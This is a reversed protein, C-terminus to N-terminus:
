GAHIEYRSGLVCSALRVQHDLQFGMNSLVRELAITFATNNPSIQLFLNMTFELVRVDVALSPMKPACGFAGLRMLQVPAPTCGCVQLEVDEIAPFLVDTRCRSPSFMFECLFHVIAVKHLRKDTCACLPAAPLRGDLNRYSRTEQLLRALEPILLPMTEGQWRQWQARRKRRHQTRDPPPPTGEHFIIDPDLAAAEGFAQAARDEDSMPPPARGNGREMIGVQSRILPVRPQVLTYNNPLLVDPLEGDPGNRRANPIRPGDHLAYNVPSTAAAAARRRAKPTLNLPM